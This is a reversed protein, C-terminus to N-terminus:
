RGSSGEVTSADKGMALLLSAQAQAFDQKAILWGAVLGMLSHLVIAHPCSRCRRCHCCCSILRRHKAVPQQSSQKSLAKRSLRQWLHALQESQRPPASRERLELSSAASNSSVPPVVTSAAAHVAAHEDASDTASADAFEDSASEEASSGLGANAIATELAGRDMDQWAQKLHPDQKTRRRRGIRKYATVQFQHADRWQLNQSQELDAQQVFRLQMAQLLLCLGNKVWWKDLQPKKELEM